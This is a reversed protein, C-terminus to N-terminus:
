DFDYIKNVHVIPQLVELSRPPYLDVKGVGVGICM